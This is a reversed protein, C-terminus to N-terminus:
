RRSLRAGKDPRQRKIRYGDNNLGKSKESQKALMGTIRQLTTQTTQSFQYKTRWYRGAVVKTTEEVQDGGTDAGTNSILGVSDHDVGTAPLQCGTISFWNNKRKTPGPSRHRIETMRHSMDTLKMVLSDLRLRFGLMKDDDLLRSPHVLGIEGNEWTLVAHNETMM